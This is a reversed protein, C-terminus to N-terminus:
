DEVKRNLNAMILKQPKFGFFNWSLFVSAKSFILPLQPLTCLVKSLCKWIVVLLSTATITFPSGLCAWDSHLAPTKQM